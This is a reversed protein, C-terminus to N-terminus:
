NHRYVEALRKIGMCALHARLQLVLGSCSDPIYTWTLESAVSSDGCDVGVIQSNQVALCQGNPAVLYGSATSGTFGSCSQLQVNFGTALSTQDFVVKSDVLEFNGLLVPNARCIYSPRIPCVSVGNPSLNGQLVTPCTSAALASSAFILAILSM